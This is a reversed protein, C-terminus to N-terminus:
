SKGSQKSGASKAKLESMVAQCNVDRRCVLTVSERLRGYETVSFPLTQYQNDASFRAALPNGILNRRASSSAKRSLSARDNQDTHLVLFYPHEALFDDRERIHDAFYGVKKWNQMLHYQTVELRPAQSSISNDWDLLFMYRVPSQSKVPMLETFTFADECVVPVAPPLTSTLAASYDSQLDIYNPLYVLGYHLILLLLATAALALPISRFRRLLKWAFDLQLALEAFLIIIGAEVPQLYRENFLPPGFLGEAYFVVPIALLAAM